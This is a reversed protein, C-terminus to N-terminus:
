RKMLAALRQCRDAWLLMQREALQHQVYFDDADDLIGIYPMEARIAAIDEASLPKRQEWAREDANWTKERNWRQIVAVQDAEDLAAFNVLPLCHLDLILVQGRSGAAYLANRVKKFVTPHPYGHLRHPSASEADQPRNWRDNVVLYGIM